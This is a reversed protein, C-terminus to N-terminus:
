DGKCVEINSKYHPALILHNRVPNEDDGLLIDRNSKSDRGDEENQSIEVLEAIIAM